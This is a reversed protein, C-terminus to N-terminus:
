SRVVPPGNGDSATQEVRTYGCEPCPSEITPPVARKPRVVLVPCPALRVVVEAVSGLLCRPLGRRGQSGIVVLDAELDAALLAIQRAPMDWRVHTFVRLGDAGVMGRELSVNVTKTLHESLDKAAQDVSINVVNPPVACEVPLAPLVLSIVHIAHLESNGREAALSIAQELALEGSESYDVGVVIVYPKKRDLV